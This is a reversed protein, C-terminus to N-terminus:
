IVFTTLMGALAAGAGGVLLLTKDTGGVSFIILGALSITIEPFCQSMNFLGNYLGANPLGECARGVVYWLVSTTTAWPIGIVAFILTTTLRSPDQLLSLCLLCAALVGDSVYLLSKVGVIGMLKPVLLNYLLSVMTQCAM